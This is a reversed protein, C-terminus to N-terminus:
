KSTERRQLEEACKVCYSEKLDTRVGWASVPLNSAMVRKGCFSLYSHPTSLHYNFYGEVGERVVVERLAIETAEKMSTGIGIKALGEEIRFLLAGPWYKVPIM